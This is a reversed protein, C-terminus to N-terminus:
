ATSAENSLETPKIMKALDIHDPLIKKYWNPVLAWLAFRRLQGKLIKTHNM